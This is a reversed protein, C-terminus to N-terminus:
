APCSTTARAGTASRRGDALGHPLGRRDASDVTVNLAVGSVGSSPVGVLGTVGVNIAQGAGVPATAGGRGTGIRTDLVRGPTVATFLGGGATADRHLLRGRRRRRQTYGQSNYINVRGNAGVKVTVLNPM